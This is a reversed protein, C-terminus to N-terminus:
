LRGAALPPRRLDGRGGLFRRRDGPLKIAREPRPWVWADDIVAHTVVEATL